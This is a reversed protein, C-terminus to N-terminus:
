WFIVSLFGHPPFNIPPNTCPGPSPNRAPHISPPISSRISSRISPHISSRHISSHISSSINEAAEGSQVSEPCQNQLQRRMSPDVQLKRPIIVEHLTCRFACCLHAEAERFPLAAAPRSSGLQGRKGSDALRSLYKLRAPTAFRSMSETDPHCEKRRVFIYARQHHRPREACSRTAFVGSSRCAGHPARSLCSYEPQLDYSGCNPLM